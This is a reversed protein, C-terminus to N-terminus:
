LDHTRVGGVWRENLDSRRWNVAEASKRPAVDSGSRAHHFVRALNNGPLFRQAAAFRSIFEDERQVVFMVDVAVDFQIGRAMEIVAAQGIAFRLSGVPADPDNRDSRDNGALLDREV